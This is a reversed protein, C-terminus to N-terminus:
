GATTGFFAGDVFAAEADGGEEFEGGTEFRFCDGGGGAGGVDVGGDESQGADVEWFVLGSEIADVEGGDDCSFCFVAAVGDGEPVIVGLSLGGTAVLEDFGEHEGLLCAFWIGKGLPEEFVDFLEGFSFEGLILGVGAVGGEEVPGVFEVGDGGFVFFGAVFEVVEGVVGHFFVVEGGGLVGDGGFELGGEAGPLVGDHEAELSFVVM